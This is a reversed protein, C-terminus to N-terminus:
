RPALHQLQEEPANLHMCQHWFVSSCPFPATTSSSEEALFWVQGGILSLALKIKLQLTHNLSLNKKYSLFSRPALLLSTCQPSNLRSGAESTDFTLHIGLGFASFLSRYSPVSPHSSGGSWSSPTFLRKHSRVFGDCLVASIGGQEDAGAGSSPTIPLASGPSHLWLQRHETGVLCASPLLRAAPAAGAVKNLGHLGSKNLM